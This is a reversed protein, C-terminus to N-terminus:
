GLLTTRMTTGKGGPPLVSRSARLSPSSRPPPPAAAEPPPVEPPPTPAAAEQPTDMRVLGAKEEFVLRDGRAASLGLAAELVRQMEVLVDDPQPVSLVIGVSVREVVGVAHETEAREKGVVYEVERTQQSRAQVTAAPMKPNAKM